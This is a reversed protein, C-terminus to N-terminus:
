DQNRMYRRFYDEAKDSIKKELERADHLKKEDVGFKRIWETDEKSLSSTAVEVHEGDIKVFKAKGGALQLFFVDGVGSFMHRRRMFERAALAAKIDKSSPRVLEIVRADQANSGPEGPLVAILQGSSGIGQVGPGIFGWLFSKLLCVENGVKVHGSNMDVRDLVKM